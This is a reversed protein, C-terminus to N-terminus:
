INRPFAYTILTKQNTQDNVNVNPRATKHRISITKTEVAVATNLHMASIREVTMITDHLMKKVVAEFRRCVVCMKYMAAVIKVIKPRDSTTKIARAVVMDLYMVCVMAAITTIDQSSLVVHDPTQHCHVINRDSHNSIKMPSNNRRRRQHNSANVAILARKKQFSTIIMEVAVEMTSNVAVNKKRTMTGVLKM